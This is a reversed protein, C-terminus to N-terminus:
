SRREKDRDGDFPGVKLSTVELDVDGDGLEGSEGDESDGWFRAPESFRNDFALTMDGDGSAVGKGGLALFFLDLTRLALGM